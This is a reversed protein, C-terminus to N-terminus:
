KAMPSGILYNEFLGEGDKDLQLDPVLFSTQIHGSVIMNTQDTLVRGDKKKASLIVDGDLLSCCFWQDDRLSSHKDLNGLVTNLENSFVLSSGNSIM